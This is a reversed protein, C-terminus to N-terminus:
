PVPTRPVAAEAFRGTDEVPLTAPVVCDLWLLGAAVVTGAEDISLSPELM